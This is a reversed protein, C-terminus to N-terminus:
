PRPERAWLNTMRVSIITLIFAVPLSLGQLLLILSTEASGTFLSQNVLFFSGVLVLMTVIFLYSAIQRNRKALKTNNIVRM